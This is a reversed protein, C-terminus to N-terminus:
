LKNMARKSCTKSEKNQYINTMTIKVKNYIYQSNIIYVIYVIYNVNYLIIYKILNYIIYYINYIDYYIIYLIHFKILHGLVNLCPTAFFDTYTDVKANLVGSYDTVINFEQTFPIKFM